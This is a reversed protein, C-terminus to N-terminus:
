ERGALTRGVGARLEMVLAGAGAVGHEGLASVVASGVVVGDAVAAVEAAQEPTSIGFGVAIPLDSAAQLVQVEHALGVALEARAGTVGTRSIYYVFGQSRSAIARARQSTTTPAILRVLDLPSAELKAELAADADLPLDTLLLGDAGADAADAIFRDVGYDLIPNLYSFLVVPTERFERFKRLLGLTWALDVGREIAVFSSKQITPGDALPDSFPVGLELVDAGADTLTLLADLGDDPTPYGATTYIVLAARGEESASQFAAAIAGERRHM